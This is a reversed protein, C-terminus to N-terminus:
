IGHLASGAASHAGIISSATFHLYEAALKANALMNFRGENRRVVGIRSVIRLCAVSFLAALWESSRLLINLRLAKTTATQSRVSSDQLLRM